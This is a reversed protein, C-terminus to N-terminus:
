YWSLNNCAVIPYIACGSIFINKLIWLCFFLISFVPYFKISRYFKNKLWLLVPVFIIFVFFVKNLFIFISVLTLIKFNSSNNIKFDERFILTLFYFLFLHAPNDNGYESYRNMELFIYTTVIFLFSKYFVDNKKFFQSVFYEIFYITSIALPITIGIDKFILNNFIASHISYFQHLELYQKFLALLYKLIM